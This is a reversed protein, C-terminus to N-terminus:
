TDLVATVKYSGTTTPAPTPAPTPRPTPAPTPAPTAAPAATSTLTVKTTAVIDDSAAFRSSIPQMAVPADANELMKDTVKMTYDGALLGVTNFTATYVGDATGATVTRTLGLGKLEVELQTGDERNCTGTVVVDNGVRTASVPDVALKAEEVIVTQEAVVTTPSTSTVKLIMIGPVVPTIVEESSDWEAMGALDYTMDTTRMTGTAFNDTRIINAISIRVTGTADKLGSTITYEVADNQAMRAPATVSITSESLVISGSVEMTNSGYIYEVTMTYTGELVEGVPGNRSTDWTYTFEGGIVNAWVNLGLENIMINVAAALKDDQDLTGSVKVDEAGAADQVPSLSITPAQILINASAKAEDTDYIGDGDTDLVATVKYSGTTAPAAIKKSFVKSSQVTTSSLYTAHTTTYGASPTDKFLLIPTGVAQNATGTVTFENLVTVKSPLAVTVLEDSVTFSSSAEAYWVDGMDTWARVKYTGKEILVAGPIEWKYTGDAKVLTANANNFMATGNPYTVQIFVPTDKQRNSEGTIDTKLRLVSDMASATLTAGVVEITARQELETGVITAKIEFAGPAAVVGTQTDWKVSYGKTDTSYQQSTLAGRSPSVTITPASTATGTITVQNGEVVTEPVNLTLEATTIAFDATATVDVNDLVVTAKVSYDKETIDSDAMTVSFTGDAITATQASQIPSVGDYVQVTVTYGALNSTGTFQIVNGRFVADADTLGSTVDDVQVSLQPPSLFVAIDEQAIGATNTDQILYYGTPETKTKWVTSAGAPTLFTSAYKEYDTCSTTTFSGEIKMSVTAAADAFQISVNEGIFVAGGHSVVSSTKM